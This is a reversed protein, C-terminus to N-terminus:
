RGAATNRSSAVEARDPFAPASATITTGSRAPHRTSHDTGSAAAQKPSTAEGRKHQWGEFAALTMPRAFYFGQIEDCGLASAASVQGITEAGEAVVRCGLNRGLQIISRSVEKGAGETELGAVFSRDIKLIDFKLTALQALNSYGTGFDDIAFRIGFERMPDIQGRVMAIDTSAITETIEITILQPPCGHAKVLEIVTTSFDAQQFQELSVNISVEIARGLATWAACQRVSKEMVFMGLDVIIGTREAMAIFEGPEIVGRLPHNWRVLAEVGALSWDLADVKPQYYVELEGRAVAERLERETAEAQLLVDLMPQDLVCTGALRPNALVQSRALAARRLIFRGNGAHLPYSAIGVGITLAIRHGEVAVPEVMAAHMACALRRIGDPDSLGPMHLAFDKMGIRALIPGGRGAPRGANVRNGEITAMPTVALLRESIIRMAQDGCDHGYRELVHRLEVVDIFFVSGAASPASDIHADLGHVLVHWNAIGTAPDFNALDTIRAHAQRLRRVMTRMSDALLGIDCACDVSIDTDLNGGAIQRAADTLDRIPGTLGASIRHMLAACILLSLAALGLRVQFQPIEHGLWGPLATLVMALGGLAAFILSLRMRTSNLGKGYDAPASSM